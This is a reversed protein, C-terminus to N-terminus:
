CANTVIDWNMAVTDCSCHSCCEPRVSSDQQWLVQAAWWHELPKTDTGELGKSWIQHSRISLNEWFFHWFTVKLLSEKSFRPLEPNGPSWLHQLEIYRCYKRCAGVCRALWFALISETTKACNPATEELMLFRTSRTRKLVVDPRSIDISISGDWWHTSIIWNTNMQQLHIACSISIGFYKQRNIEPLNCWSRFMPSRVFSVNTSGSCAIRELIKWKQPASVNGLSSAVHQSTAPQFPSPFYRKNISLFLPM